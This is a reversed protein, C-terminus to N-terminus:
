SLACILLFHSCGECSWHLAGQGCQGPLAGQVSCLRARAYIPSLCRPMQGLAFKTGSVWPVGHMIGLQSHFQNRSRGGARWTVVGSAIHQYLELWTGSAVPCGLCLFSYHGRPCGGLFLGQARFGRTEFPFVMAFATAGSSGPVCSFKLSYSSRETM